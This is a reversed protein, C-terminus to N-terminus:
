NVVPPLRGKVDRTQQEKCNVCLSAQPLVELRAPDIPKGCVDCLGYTGREFKGLAREVDDLLDKMQKELALSKELEAVESAEEEGRKIFSNGERREEISHINTQLQEILRKREDELRSCLLDFNTTM